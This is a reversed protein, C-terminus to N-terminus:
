SFDITAAVFLDGFDEVKRNAGHAAAQEAGAEFSAVEECWAQMYFFDDVCSSRCVGFNRVRRRAASRRDQHRVRPRRARRPRPGVRWRDPLEVVAGRTAIRRAIPALKAWLIRPGRSSRRFRGDRERPWALALFRLSRSFVQM